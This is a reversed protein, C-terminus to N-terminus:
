RSRVFRWLRVAGIGAWLTAMLALATLIKLPSLVVDGLPDEHAPSCAFCMRRGDYVEAGCRRCTM